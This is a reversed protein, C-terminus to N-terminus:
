EDGIDPAEKVRSDWSVYIREVDKVVAKYVYFGSLTFEEMTSQVEYPSYETCPAYAYKKTSVGKIRLAAPPNIRNKHIGANLRFILTPEYPVNEYHMVVPANAVESSFPVCCLKAFCDEIIQKASGSTGLEFGLEM